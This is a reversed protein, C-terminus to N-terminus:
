GNQNNKEKKSTIDEKINMKYNNEITSSYQKLMARSPLFCIINSCSFSYVDM